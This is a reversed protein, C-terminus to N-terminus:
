FAGKVKNKVKIFHGKLLPLALCSAILINGLNVGVRYVEALYRTGLLVADVYYVLQLIALGAYIYIVNMAIPEIRAKLRQHIAYILSICAADIAAWSGFWFLFDIEKSLKFLIPELKLNLLQSILWVLAAIFYSRSGIKLYLMVLPAILSISWIWTNVEYLKSLYDHYM